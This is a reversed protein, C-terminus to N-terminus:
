ESMLAECHELEIVAPEAKCMAYAESETAGYAWELRFPDDRWVRACYAPVPGSEGFGTEEIIVEEFKAKM